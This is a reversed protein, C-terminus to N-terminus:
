EVLRLLIGFAVSPGCERGSGAGQRTRAKQALCAQSTVWGPGMGLSWSAHGFADDWVGCRCERGGAANARRTQGMVLADCQQTAYSFALGTGASVLREICKDLSAVPSGLLGASLFNCGAGFSAIRAWEGGQGGQEKHGAHALQGGAAVLSHRPRVAHRRNQRRMAIIVGTFGCVCGPREGRGCAPCVSLAGDLDGLRIARYVM